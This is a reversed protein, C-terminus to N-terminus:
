KLLDNRTLAGIKAGRTLSGVEAGRTLPPVDDFIVPPIGNFLIQRVLIGGLQKAVWRRVPARGRQWQTADGWVTPLLGKVLSAFLNLFIGRKLSPTAVEINIM